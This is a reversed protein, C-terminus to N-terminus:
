DLLSYFAEQIDFAILDPHGGYKGVCRHSQYARPLCVGVEQNQDTGCENVLIDIYKRSIIARTSKRGERILGDIVVIMM